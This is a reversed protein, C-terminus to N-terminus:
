IQKTCFEWLTYTACPTPLLRLQLLPGCHRDRTGVPGQFDGSLPCQPSPRAGARKVWSFDAPFPLDAVTWFIGSSTYSHLTWKSSSKWVLQRFTLWLWCCDKEPSCWGLRHVLMCVTLWRTMQYHLFLGEPINTSTNNQIPKNVWEKKELADHQSVKAPFQLGQHGPKYSVLGLNM